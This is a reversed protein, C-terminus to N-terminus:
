FPFGDDGPKRTAELDLDFQVGYCRARKSRGPPGTVIHLVGADAMSELRTLADAHRIGLEAAWERSTLLAGDNLRSLIRREVQEIDLEAKPDIVFGGADRRYFLDLADGTPLEGERDKLYRLRAYGHSLREVALAVEVGRVVAGTGAVDDLTLKRAGVDDKGQRKRPHAPLILAFGYRARLTDLRRMLEVIPREANPDDARHAKYYPDLVVVVPDVAAILNELATFDEPQDLALGDPVAAVHVRDHEDLGADVVARKISKRGQELDVVLATEDAAAAGRWHLFPRGDVIAAIMQLVLTTKGHGSDGLVITRGGRLVLDGLLYHGAPPDAWEAVQRATSSTLAARRTATGAALEHLRDVLDDHGTLGGNEAATRIQFALRITERAVAARRVLEAYHPANAAAPVLAALEHIRSRGGVDDIWGRRELEAALTIADVPQELDHLHCAAVFIRGHTARYFDTAAVVERVGDLARGNSLMIAGLVSEEADLNQPAVRELDTM